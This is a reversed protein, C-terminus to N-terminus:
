KDTQGLKEDLVTKAYKEIYNFVYQVISGLVEKTLFPKFPTPVVAYLQEVVQEFKKGGAHTADKYDNEARAIYSTVKEIIEGKSRFYLAIFGFVVTGVTTLINFITIANM